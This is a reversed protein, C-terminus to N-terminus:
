AQPKGTTSLVKFSIVWVYPNAVWSNKGNISEWLTQFSFTPFQTTTYGKRYNKYLPENDIVTVIPLGEAKADGESISYLREVKVSSVELWIRSHEKRLRISPKWKEDLM